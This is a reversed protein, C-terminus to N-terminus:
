SQAMMQEIGAQQNSSEQPSTLMSQGAIESPASSPQGGGGKAAQMQMQMSQQQAQAQEVQVKPITILANTTEIKNLRAYERIFYGIDPLVTNGGKDKWGMPMGTQPNIQLYPQMIQMFQLLEQSKARNDGDLASINPIAYMTRKLIDPTVKITL